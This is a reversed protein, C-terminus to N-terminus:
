TRTSTCSGAMDRGGQSGPGGGGLYGESEGCEASKSLWFSYLSAGSLRFVLKVVEGSVHLAELDPVDMWRVAARTSDFPENATTDVCTNADLGGVTSTNWDLGEM